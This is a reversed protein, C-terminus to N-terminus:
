ENRAISANSWFVATELETMAVSKERSDPCLTDIIYALEKAKERIMEYKEAQGQKPAHYTFNNEIKENYYVYVILELEDEGFLNQMGDNNFQEDDYKVEYPYVWDEDIDVITGIAGLLREDSYEDVRVVKVKDGIKFKSM